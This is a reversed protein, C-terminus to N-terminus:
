GCGGGSQDRKLELKIRAEFELEEYRTPNPDCSEYSSGLAAPFIYGLQDEAVSSASQFDENEGFFAIWNNIGGELIYVNPVSSAVLQKWAETAATEDNSMLVFVSNAPPETLLDPVIRPLKDLPVNLAGNLHYLNYDSEPRVDLMILNVNQNYVTKFLEAPTIQVLRQELMADANLTVNQKDMERSFEIRNYREEISPSGILVVGVALAFLAVAGAIRLKPERSLDKKGFIRELQEAGWFMFLAMLVVLLVVVGIPLHFVQDLTLRGYYGANTYWGDFYKETEGFLFAGFFGGFVFFMGDVKGTSAAALSTTPCFGGIIFGVGMILGGLIGSSLYTPNVWVQSFNLIGLGVAGFLLVMATVIATFMVKLVTLDTFYFQAALKRSNGFGSMELTFGFAFGILGFVVYTWPNSASVAIFSELPFDM